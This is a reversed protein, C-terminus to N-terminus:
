FKHRLFEGKLSPTADESARRYGVAHNNVEAASNIDVLDNITMCLTCKFVKLGKPWRSMAGCTMCNGSAFDKDGAPKVHVKSPGLPQAPRKQKSGPGLGLMEADSDSDSDFDDPSPNKPAQKRKASFLSPFPHSMSRGHSSPRQAPATRNETPLTPILDSPVQSADVLNPDNSRSSSAVPRRM